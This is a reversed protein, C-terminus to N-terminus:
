HDSSKAAFKAQPQIEPCQFSVFSHLLPWIIRQSQSSSPIAEQSPCLCAEALHAASTTCPWECCDAISACPHAPAAREGDSGSCAWKAYDLPSKPAGLIWSRLCRPALPHDWSIRRASSIVTSCDKGIQCCTCYRPRPRRTCWHLVESFRDCTCFDSSQHRLSRFIGGNAPQPCWICCCGPAPRLRGLVQRAFRLFSDTPSGLPVAVEGAPEVRFSRCSGRFSWFYTPFPLQVFCWFRM